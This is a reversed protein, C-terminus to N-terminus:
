KGARRKAARRQQFELCGRHLDHALGKLRDLEHDDLIWWGREGNPGEVILLRGIDSIAHTCAMRARTEFEHRAIQEQTRRVGSRHETRDGGRGTRVLRDDHVKGERFEFMLQRVSKGDILDDIKSRVEIADAPVEALPLALTEHLPLSFEQMCSNQIGAYKLAEAAFQRWSCIRSYVVGIEAKHAEVWPGFQGHPLNAVIHEIFLGCILIRRTADQADRVLRGLEAAVEADKGNRLQPAKTALTNKM